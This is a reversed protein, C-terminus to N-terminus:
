YKFLKKGYLGKYSDFIGEFFARLKRRKDNEFLIIKLLSVVNRLYYEFRLDPYLGVMYLRNRTIYYRRNYSHHSCMFDRWFFNHKRTDGLYHLLIANNVVVIKYGDNILRRCFEVDVEDIFFDDRFLGIKNYADINVLNGSTMVFDVEKFDSFDEEFPYGEIFHKCSLIGLRDQDALPIRNLSELLVKISSEQFMSDQDMTLVWGAQFEKALMMGKNLATAIGLNGGMYFYEIQSGFRLLLENILEVCQCDSNDIVFLKEFGFIYSGLNDIVNSDPNYLVVVGALKIM